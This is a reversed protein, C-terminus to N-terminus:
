KVGYSTTGVVVPVCEFTYVEQDSGTSTGGTLTTILTSAGYSGNHVEIRGTNKTAPQTIYLKAQKGLYETEM